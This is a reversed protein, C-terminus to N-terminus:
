CGLSPEIIIIKAIKMNKNNSNVLALSRLNRLLSNIGLFLLRREDDRLRLLDDEVFDRLLFAVLLFDFERVLFVFERRM